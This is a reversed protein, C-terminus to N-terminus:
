NKQLTNCIVFLFERNEQLLADPLKLIVFLGFDMYMNNVLSHRTPSLHWILNCNKSFPNLISSTLSRKIVNIKPSESDRRQTIDTQRYTHTSDVVITSFRFWLINNLFHSRM